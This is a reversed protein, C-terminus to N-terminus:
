VAWLGCLAGVFKEAVMGSKKDFDQWFASNLLDGGFYMLILIFYLQVSSILKLNKRFFNSTYEQNCRTAPPCIDQNISPNKCTIHLAQFIQMVTYFCIQILNTKSASYFNFFHDLKLITHFYQLNRIQKQEAM